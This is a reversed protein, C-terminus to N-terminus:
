IRPIKHPNTQPTARDSPIELGQSHQRKGSGPNDVFSPIDHKWLLQNPPVTNQQSGNQSQLEGDEDWGDAENEEERRRKLDVRFRQFLDDLWELEGWDWRFGRSRVWKNFYSTIAREKEEVSVTSTNDLYVDQLYKQSLERTRGLVAPWKDSFGEKGNWVDFVRDALWRASECPRGKLVFPHITHTRLESVVERVTNHLLIDCPFCDVCFFRLRINYERRKHLDILARLETLCWPFDFFDPTLVCLGLGGGRLQLLATFIDSHVHGSISEEDFFIHPPVGQKNGRDRLEKCVARMLFRMSYGLRLREGGHFSLFLDVRQESDVM